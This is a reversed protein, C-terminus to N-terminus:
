SRLKVFVITQISPSVLAVRYCPVSEYIFGYEVPLYKYRWKNKSIGCARRYVAWALRRSWFAYRTGDPFEVIQADRIQNFPLKETM